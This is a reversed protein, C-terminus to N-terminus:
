SRCRLICKKIISKVTDLFYLDIYKLRIYHNNRSDLLGYHYQITRWEIFGFRDKEPIIEEQYCRRMDDRLAKSHYANGNKTSIGGIIHLSTVQNLFPITLNKKAISIWAPWDELLRYSEDFGGFWDFFRRHFLVSVASIINERAIIRFLRDADCDLLKGRVPGPFRYYVTKYHLDSVATDSCIVITKKCKAFEVLDRLSHENAFADGSSIFKLYTGHSMGALFNLHATTGLNKTGMRIRVPFKAQSLLQLVDEPFPIGSADDSIILELIPYDQNFVSEITQHLGEYNGYTVILVSVSEDAM